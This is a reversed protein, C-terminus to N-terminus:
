KSNKSFPLRFLLGLLSLVIGFSITTKKFIIYFLAVVAMSMNEHYIKSLYYTTKKINNNHVSYYVALKRYLLLTEHLGIKPTLLKLYKEQLTKQVNFADQWYAATLSQPHFRYYYLDTTNLYKFNYKVFARVFFDYDEVLFASPDYGNNAAHIEAKYMFCAGCGLWRFFSENVDNPAFTGIRKDHEDITIYGAYVLDTNTDKELAEYLVELANPAYYNDDSTWTFYKGRAIDFGTNLSIPLKKNVSNNIITIRKDKQAYASIIELTNDTSCDNVIILEFNEYTQQLCSDISQEIYKSVGNYTPLVISILDKM